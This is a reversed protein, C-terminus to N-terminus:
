RVYYINVFIDSTVATTGVTTTIITDTTESQNGLNLAAPSIQGATAVTTANVFRTASVGKAGISLTATATGVPVNVEIKLINARAPIVAKDITGTSDANRVVISKVIITNVNSLATPNLDPYQIM